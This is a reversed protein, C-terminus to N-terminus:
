GVSQADDTLLRNLLGWRFRPERVAPAPTQKLVVIEDRLQSITQEKMEIVQDKAAQLTEVEKAKNELTLHLTQITEDKAALAEEFARIVPHTQEIVAVDTSPISPAVLAEMPEALTESLAPMPEAQLTELAEEFTKGSDLLAKARQFYALDQETYRRQASGGTETKSPQAGPSLVPAFINSWVRLTPASVGLQDLVNKPKLM